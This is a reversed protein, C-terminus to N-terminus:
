PSETKAPKKSAKRDAISLLTAAVAPLDKAPVEHLRRKCESVAENALSHLFEPTLHNLPDM